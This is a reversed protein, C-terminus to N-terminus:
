PFYKRLYLLLFFPRYFHFVFLFFKSDFHRLMSFDLYEFRFCNELIKSYGFNLSADPHAISLGKIGGLLLYNKCSVFSYLTELDFHSELISM